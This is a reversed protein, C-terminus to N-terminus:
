RRRSRLMYVAIVAIIIVVVMATVAYLWLPAGAEAARETRQPTTVIVPQTPSQVATATAQMTQTPSQTLQLTTVPPTQTPTALTKLFVREPRMYNTGFGNEWVGPQLEDSFAINLMAVFTRSVTWVAPQDDVIINLAQRVLEIQRTKNLEKEAELLLKEAAPNNYGMANSWSARVIGRSTYYQIFYAPGPGHVFPFISMDFDWERFVKQHWAATDLTVIQVDIGIDKLFDRILQAEQVYWPYSTSDIVLRLRFRFGDAGRKYGTEDLIRNAEAPNYGPQRKDPYFMATAPARSVMTELPEVKGFYVLEAIASRNIAMAIAKRVRVDKLPATSNEHLNFGVVDLSGGPSPFFWVRKGPLRGDLVMKELQAAHAFSIGYNWVFDVEGRQFALMMAESSPVIKYIIRDLYPLGKKWYKDNRELVIYQGKVWEKFKFPGTGIPRTNYPNNAIDTGEYLHRPSICTGAGGFYGPYLVLGWTTNFRFVVTYNDPTDIGELYRRMGAIFSNFLPGIKEYSFKVDQSTFPTGDHWTANRVLNFIIMMGSNNTKVIQWSEALDPIWDLTKPDFGVLSNCIPTVVQYYTWTPSGTLVLNPPESPIGVVLTGGYPPIAQQAETKIVLVGLVAIGVIAVLLLGSGRNRPSEHLYVM